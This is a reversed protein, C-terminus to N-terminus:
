RKHLNQGGRVTAPYPSTGGSRTLTYGGDVPIIAGTIYQAADSALFCCLAGVDHARGLRGLPIGQEVFARGETHLYSRSWDAETWGAAVVNVTIGHLGLDVAAMRAVSGLASLTTGAVSTQILPILAASSSVFIMRGGKGREIMAGAAAQAAYIMREFNQRIAEDWEAPTTEVFESVAYWGPNIVALHFAPLASVQEALAKRDDLEVPFFRADLAALDTTPAEEGAFVIRSGAERLSGAIGLALENLTGIILSTKETLDLM